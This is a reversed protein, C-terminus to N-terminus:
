SRLFIPIVKISAVIYSIKKKKEKKEEEEKTNTITINYSKNNFQNNMTMHTYSVLLQIM